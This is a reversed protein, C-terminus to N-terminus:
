SCARDIAECIKRPDEGAPFLHVPLGEGELVHRTKADPNPGCAGIRLAQLSPHRKVRRVIDLMRSNWSPVHMFFYDTASVGLSILADAEHDCIQVISNAFWDKLTSVFKDNDACLAVIRLPRGQLGAPVPMGNANLFNILDRDNVKRHGGATRFATLKGQDIWKAVTTQHIGLMRAITVTGYYKESM